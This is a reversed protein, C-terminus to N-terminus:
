VTDRGVDTEPPIILKGRGLDNHLRKFSRSAFCQWLATPSPKDVHPTSKGQGNSGSALSILKILKQLPHQLLCQSRNIVFCAATDFPALVKVLISKLSWYYQFIFQKIHAPNSVLTLTDQSRHSCGHLHQVEPKHPIQCAWWNDCFLNTFGLPSAMLTLSCSFCISCSCWRFLSCSM